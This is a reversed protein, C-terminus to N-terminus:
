SPNASKDPFGPIAVVRLEAASKHPQEEPLVAPIRCRRINLKYESCEFDNIIMLDKWLQKKSKAKKEEQINQLIENMREFAINELKEEEDSTM